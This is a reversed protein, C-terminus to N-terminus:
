YYDKLAKKLNECTNNLHDNNVEHVNVKHVDEM